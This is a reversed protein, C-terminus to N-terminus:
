DFNRRLAQRAREPLGEIYAELAVAHRRAHENASEQTRTQAILDRGSFGARSRLYLSFQGGEEEITYNLM